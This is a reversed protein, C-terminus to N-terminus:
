RRTLLRFVQEAINTLNKKTVSPNMAESLSMPKDIIAFYADIGHKNIVRVDEKLCGGFAIVTKNYKKALKAVGIPAKGMATQADLRGEGTVVVDTKKIKEELNIKDLVIEIGPKLIANLYTILAYGLGGAAGAGKHNIMDKHITVKTLSAYNSLYKDMVKTMEKTAGKQPGFIASCGLKGCLPNSVDSAVLFHCKDLKKNRKSIDIKYLDKLGEAGLIIDKNNKNLFKFGLAMLMGVGGDNTASGGICIIFKNAGKSIADNILEGVGFTTTKLPNLEEKKLLTIGSCKSMEIIALKDKKVLGYSANVKKNLPGHVLKTIISGKNASILAELTGEGGDALMSVNTKIDRSVLKIGKEIALGAELSTVSGKFSDIAILVNM